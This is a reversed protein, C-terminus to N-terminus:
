PLAMALATFDNVVLLTEFRLARRTAEISFHWDRNTMRVEDGEIPNAIAIAAHRVPEAHDAEDLYARIVEPVGPYDDCAYDRIEV